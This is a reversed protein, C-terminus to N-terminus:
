LKAQSTWGSMFPVSVTWYAPDTGIARWLTDSLRDYPSPVHAREQRTSLQKPIPGLEGRLVTMVTVRRDREIATTLDRQRQELETQKAREAEISRADKERQAQDDEARQIRDVYLAVLFGLVAGLYTAVLAPVFGAEGVFPLAFVAGISLAIGAVLWPRKM